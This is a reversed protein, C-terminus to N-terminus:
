ACSTSWDAEAQTVVTSDEFEKFVNRSYHLKVYDSYPHHLLYSVNGLVDKVKIEVEGKWLAAQLWFSKV